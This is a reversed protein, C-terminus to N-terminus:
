FSGSDKKFEHIEASNLTSSKIVLGALFDGAAGNLFPSWAVNTCTSSMGIEGAGIDCSPDRILLIAPPVSTDTPDTLSAQLCCPNCYSQVLTGPAYYCCNTGCEPPDYIGWDTNVDEYVFDRLADQFDMMISASMVKIEQIRENYYDSCQALREVIM